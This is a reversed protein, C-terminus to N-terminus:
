FQIEDGTCVWLAASTLPDNADVEAHGNVNEGSVTEEGSIFVGNTGANVELFGGSGSYLGGGGGNTDGGGAVYYGGALEVKNSDNAHRNGAHCAEHANAMGGSLLLAGACAAIIMKRM